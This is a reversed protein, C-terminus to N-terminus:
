FCILFLFCVFQIQKICYFSLASLACNPTSVKKNNFCCNHSINWRKFQKVTKLNENNELLGFVQIFFSPLM